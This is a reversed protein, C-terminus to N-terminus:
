TPNEFKTIRGIYRTNATATEGNRQKAVIWECTGREEPTVQEGAVDPRYLFIVNHADQEIQGSERLDALVPRRAGQARKEVDRSLQAAAILAIDEERATIRLASSIQAV